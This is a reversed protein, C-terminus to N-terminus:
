PVAAMLESTTVTSLAQVTARETALNVSAGTVGPVKLLASEVRGACSACTMGEVRFTLETTCVEYGARRVAAALVDATVAAGGQVSVRETALNVTAETVGPIKRLAKEVRAVCSACTMGGIQLEISKPPLPALMAPIM